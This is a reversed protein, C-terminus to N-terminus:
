TDLVFARRQLAEIMGGPWGGDASDKTQHVVILDQIRVSGIIPQPSPQM